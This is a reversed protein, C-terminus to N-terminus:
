RSFLRRFNIRYELGAIGALVMVTGFGVLRDANFPIRVLLLSAILAIAGPIIVSKLLNEKTM